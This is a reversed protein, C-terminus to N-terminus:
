IQIKWITISRSWQNLILHNLYWCWDWTNLYYLIFYFFNAILRGDVKHKKFIKM